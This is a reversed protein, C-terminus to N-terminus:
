QEMFRLLCDSCEPSRGSVLLRTLKETEVPCACFFKFTCTKIEDYEAFKLFAMLRLGYFCNQFLKEPDETDFARRLDLNSCETIFNKNKM